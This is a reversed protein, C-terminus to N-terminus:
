YQIVECLVIDIDSLACSETRDFSCIPPRLTPGMAARTKGGAHRRQRHPSYTWSHAAKSLLGLRWAVHASMGSEGLWTQSRGHYANSLVAASCWRARVCLPMNEKVIAVNEHFMCAFSCCSSLQEKRMTHQPLLV